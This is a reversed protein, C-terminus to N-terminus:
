EEDEDEDENKDEDEGDDYEYEDDEDQKIYKDHPENSNRNVEEILEARKEANSIEIAKQWTERLSTLHKLVEDIGEVKRNLGTKLLVNYLYDYLRYLNQALSGGNEMDLTNMFEIIIKQCSFINSHYQEDNSQELDVKAKNLYQIAGDYLLILIQEPTATEVQNKKYEKLYTNPLNM